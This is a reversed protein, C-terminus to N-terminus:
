QAAKRIPTVTATATPITEIHRLWDAMLKKRKELQDGRRYAAEAKNRIAHALALEITENQFHTTEAAWDRFTSRFGHPVYATFSTMDRLLELLASSSLGTRKKPSHGPFVYNSARTEELRSVIHLSRTSLPVRHERKAKMRSAPVTWLAAALDFETWEANIVEGTRAATLIAFELALASLGSKKRLAQMFPHIERYPLAPHHHVRKTKSARPLLQALNGKLAAPNAGKRYGRATAWDIVVEIRQRLRTATETKTTWIPELVRLVDATDIDAVPVNGLPRSCYTALTNTWQAAHKANTWEARKAAICQKAAEDFTIARATEFKRAAEARKREDIPDLGQTHLGRYEQAADRAQALTRVATSGLGMDRRKGTVPSVYRFVWSRTIGTVGQALQLYLGLQAADAHYGLRTEATVTRASLRRYGM